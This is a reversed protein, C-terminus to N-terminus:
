TAGLTLIASCGFDMLQLYESGGEQLNMCSEGLRECLFSKERNTLHPHNVIFLTLQDFMQIVSYGNQNMLEAFDELNSYSRQNKCIDYFQDLFRLPVLGSIEDLDEVKIVPGEEDCKKLTYCSQLLTIARRLDGGSIDVITKYVDGEM